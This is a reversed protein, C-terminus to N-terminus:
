NYITMVYIWVDLTSAGSAFFELYLNGTSDEANMHITESVRTDDAVGRLNVMARQQSPTTSQPFVEVRTTTSAASGSDRAQILLDYALPEIQSPYGSVLSSMDLTATGSSFSDGNYGTLVQLSVRQVEQFVTIDKRPFAIQISNDSSIKNSRDIVIDSCNADAVISYNGTGTTPDGGLRNTAFSINTCRELQVSNHGGAAPDGPLSNGEISIASITSSGDEDEFYIWKGGAVAQEFGVGEIKITLPGYKNTFHFIESGTGNVFGGYIKWRNWGGRVYFAKQGTTLTFENNMFSSTTIVNAETDPGWLPCDIAIDTQIFRNKDLLHGGLGAIQVGSSLTPGTSNGFVCYSITMQRIAYVRMAVISSPSSISSEFTGGFWYGFSKVNVEPNNEDADPNLDFAINNDAIINFVAGYATVTTNTIPFDVSSINYTKPPFLFSADGPFATRMSEIQTKDDAAGLGVGFWCANIEGCYDWLWAASGDGGTPVIISGGNDVYTGPPQGEAWYRLPGGGGDGLARYGLVNATQGQFNGSLLRLESIDAFELKKFNGKIVKTM